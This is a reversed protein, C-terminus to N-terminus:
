EFMTLSDSFIFEYFKLKEISSMNDSNKWWKVKEFELIERMSKKLWSIFIDLKCFESNM